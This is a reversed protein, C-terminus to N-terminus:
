SLHATRHNLHRVSSEWPEAAFLLYGSGMILGFATLVMAPAFFAVILGHFIVAGVLLPTRLTDIWVGVALLAEGFVTAVALTVLFRRDFVFDPAPVPGVFSVSLVGGSLFRSNLKAFATWLFVVTIQAQLVRMPVGRLHATSRRNGLWASWWHMALGLAVLYVIDFFTQRDLLGALVAGVAGLWGLRVRTVPHLFALTGIAWVGLAVSATVPSVGLDGIRPIGVVEGGGILVFLQTADVMILLSAALMSAMSATHLSRQPVALLWRIVTPTM